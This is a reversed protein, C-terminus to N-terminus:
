QTLASADFKAAALLWGSLASGIGGGVKMGFSTSVLNILFFGLNIIASVKIGDMLEEEPLDKFFVSITNVALGIVAFIIATTKWGAAGGGFKEVMVLTYNSVLVNGPTAGIFRFTGM